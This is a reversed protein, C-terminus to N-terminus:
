STKRRLIPSLWADLALHLPKDLDFTPYKEKMTNRLYGPAFTAGAREGLAVLVILLLPAPPWRDTVRYSELLGIAILARDDEVERPRM